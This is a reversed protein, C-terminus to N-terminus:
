CCRHFWLLYHGDDDGGAGDGCDCGDCGYEDYDCDDCGDNQNGDDNGNVNVNGGCDKWRYRKMAEYFEYEEACCSVGVFLAGGGCVDVNEGSESENVSMDDMDGDGVDDADGV